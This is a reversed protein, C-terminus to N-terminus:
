FKRKLVFDAAEVLFEKGEKVFPYDEIAAKAQDVLGAALGQCYALAGTERIMKRAWELDKRTINKNGVFSAFKREEERGAKELAKIVLLTRKGEKLDLDVPKGITKEEGFMGLIDDKIQFAIGLPLGYNEFVQFVKEPAEALAAGIQLPRVVSYRATKYELVKLVEEETEGGLVDLYEGAIVEEKLLDFYAKAKQTLDLSFSLNTFIEDALTLALDGALIAGALGFKKFVTPKGRRTESNDIIDDHVLVFIHSLELALCPQLIAKEDKGGCALYGFYCFAPRLRKGGALILAKIEKVLVEIQFDIKAFQYTKEELYALFKRDFVEKFQILAEMFRGFKLPPRGRVKTSLKIGRIEWVM